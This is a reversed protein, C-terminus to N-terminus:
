YGGIKPYRTRLAPYYMRRGSKSDILLKSSGFNYQQRKFMVLWLKFEELEMTHITQWRELYDRREFYSIQGSGMVQPQEVYSRMLHKVAEILLAKALLPRAATFPFSASSLTQVPQYNNINFLAVEVFDSLRGKDFNVLSADRLHPGGADSDFCDNLMKWALDVTRDIELTSVALPDIVEFRSVVSKINTNALTFHTILKYEGTAFSDVTRFRSISGNPVFVPQIGTTPANEPTTDNASYFTFTTSTLVLQWPATGVRRRYFRRAAIGAVATADLATVTVTNAVTAITASASAPTEYNFGNVTVLYTQLYEFTGTLVGAGNLSLTPTLAAAASITYSTLDPRMYDWSVSSAVVPTVGDEDYCM